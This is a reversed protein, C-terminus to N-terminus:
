FGRPCGDGERHGYCVYLGLGHGHCGAAAPFESGFDVDGWEDVDKEHQQDDEHDDLGDRQLAEVGEDGLGGFRRIAGVLRQGDDDPEEAVAVVADGVLDVLGGEAFALEFRFEGGDEGGSVVFGHEDLAVGTEVEGLDGLDDVVAM